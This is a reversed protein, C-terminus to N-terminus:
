RPAELAAGPGRPPLRQGGGASSTRDRREAQCTTGRSVMSDNWQGAQDSVPVQSIKNESPGGERSYPHYGCGKAGTAPQWGNIIPPVPSPQAAIVDEVDIVYVAKWGQPPQDLTDERCTTEGHHIRRRSMPLREQSEVERMRDAEAVGPQVVVGRLSM